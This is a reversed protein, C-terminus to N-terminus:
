IGVPNLLFGARWDPKKGGRSFAEAYLVAYHRYLAGNLASSPDNHLYPCVNIAWKKGYIADFSAAALDFSAATAYVSCEKPYKVTAAASDRTRAADQFTTFDDGSAPEWLGNAPSAPEAASCIKINRAAMTVIQEASIVPPWM